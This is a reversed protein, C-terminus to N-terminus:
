IKPMSSLKAILADSQEKSIAQPEKSVTAATPVAESFIIKGDKYFLMKKLSDPTLIFQAYETEYEAIIKDRFAEDTFIKTFFEKDISNTIESDMFLPSGAAKEVRSDKSQADDLTTTWWVKKNATDFSVIGNPDTNDQTKASLTGDEAFEMLYLKNNTRMTYLFKKGKEKKTEEPATATPTPAVLPEEKEVSPDPLITQAAVAALQSVKKAADSSATAFTQADIFTATAPITAYVPKGTADNRKEISFQIKQKTRGFLEGDRLVTYVIFNSQFFYPTLQGITMTFQDEENLYNSIATIGGPTLKDDEGIIDLDNIIKVIFQTKNQVRYKIKHKKGSPDIMTDKGSALAESITSWSNFSTIM